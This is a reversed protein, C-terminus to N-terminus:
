TITIAVCLSGDKQQTLTWVANNDIRALYSV